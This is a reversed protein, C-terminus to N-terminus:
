DSSNIGQRNSLCRSERRRDYKILNSFIKKKKKKTSKVNNTIIKVLEDGFTEVSKTSNLKHSIISCKTTGNSQKTKTRENPMEKVM